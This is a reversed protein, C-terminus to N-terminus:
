KEIINPSRMKNLEKNLDELKLKTSSISVKRKDIDDEWQLFNYLLIGNVITMEDKVDTTIDNIEIDIKEISKNLNVIELTTSKRVSDIKGNNRWGQIFIVAFM